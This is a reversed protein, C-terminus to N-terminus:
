LGNKECDTGLADIVHNVHVAENHECSPLLLLFLLLLLLLNTCTRVGRMLILLRALRSISATYM